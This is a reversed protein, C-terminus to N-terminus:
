AEGEGVYYTHYTGWVVSKKPELQLVNSALHDDVADIEAWDSVMQCDDISVVRLGEFALADVIRRRVDEVDPALVALWGVAGECDDPIVDQDGAKVFDARAIWWFDEDRRRPWDVRM